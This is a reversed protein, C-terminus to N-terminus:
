DVTISSIIAQVDADTLAIKGESMELWISIQFHEGGEEGTWLTAIPYDLSKATFGKWTRGGLEMPEIDAPEDYFDSSPEMFYSDKDYYYIYMYPHTFLDIENEAGKGIQLKTADTENDSSFMDKVAFTKWGSPVDVSFVTTDYKTASEAVKESSASTLDQPKEEGGCAALALLMAIALLAALLKKM